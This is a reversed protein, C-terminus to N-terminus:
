SVGTASRQEAGTPGNAAPTAPTRTNSPGRSGTNPPPGSPLWGERYALRDLYYKTSKDMPPNQKWLDHLMAITQRREVAAGISTRGSGAEESLVLMAFGALSDRSFALNRLYEVSRAYPAILLLSGLATQRIGQEPAERSIRVLRDFAGDYPMNGDVPFGQGADRLADLASHASHYADLASRSGAPRVAMAVLSDALEDRKAHSQIEGRLLRVSGVAGYRAFTRAASSDEYPHRRVAGQAQVLSALSTCLFAIKLSYKM